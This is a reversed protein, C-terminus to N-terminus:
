KNIIYSAQNFIERSNYNYGNLRYFSDISAAIFDLCFKGASEYTTNREETTAKTKEM